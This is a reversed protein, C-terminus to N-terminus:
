LKVDGPAMKVDDPAMKVDGPLFQPMFIINKILNQPTSTMQCQRLFLPSGDSYFYEVLISQANLGKISQVFAQLQEAQEQDARELWKDRAAALESTMRIMQVFMQQELARLAKDKLRALQLNLHAVVLEVTTSLDFFQNHSDSYKDISVRIQSLETEMQAKDDESLILLVPGHNSKQNIIGTIAAASAEQASPAPPPPAGNRVPSLQGWNHSIRGRSGNATLITSSQPQNVSTRTSRVAGEPLINGADLALADRNSM